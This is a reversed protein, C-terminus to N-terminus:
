ILYFGIGAFIKDSEEFHDVKYDPPFHIGFHFDNKWNPFFIRIMTRHNVIKKQSALNENQFHNKLFPISKISYAFGNFLIDASLIM